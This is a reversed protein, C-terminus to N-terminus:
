PPFAQFIKIVVSLRAFLALRLLLAAPGGRVFLGLSMKLVCESLDLYKM